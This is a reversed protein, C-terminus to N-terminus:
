GAVGAARWASDRDRHVEVRMVKGDRFWYAYYLDLTLEAGSEKGRATHRAHVALGDHGHEVKVVDFTVDDEFAAFWDAFWRGVAAPGFYLGPAQMDDGALLVVGEDYAEMVRPWDSRHEAGAFQARVVDENTV